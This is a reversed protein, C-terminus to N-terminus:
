QRIGYQPSGRYLYVCETASTRERKYLAKCIQTQTITPNLLETLTEYFKLTFKPLIMTAARKKLGRWGLHRKLKWGVGICGMVSITWM